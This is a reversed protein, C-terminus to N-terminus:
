MGHNEIANCIEHLVENQRNIITEIRSMAERVGVVEQMVKAVLGGEFIGIKRRKEPPLKIIPVSTARANTVDRGLNCPTGNDESRKRKRHSEDADELGDQSPAELQPEPQEHQEAGLQFEDVLQFAQENNPPWDDPEFGGSLTDHKYCGCSYVPAGQGHGPHRTCGQHSEPTSRNSHNEFLDANALIAELGDNFDSPRSDNSLTDCDSSM